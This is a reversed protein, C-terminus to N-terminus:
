HLPGMRAASAEEQGFDEVPGARADDSNKRPPM